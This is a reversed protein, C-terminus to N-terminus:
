ALAREIRPRLYVVIKGFEEQGFARSAHEPSRGDHPWGHDRYNEEGIASMDVCSQDLYLMLSTESIAAHDGRTAMCEAFPIVRFVHDATLDRALQMM